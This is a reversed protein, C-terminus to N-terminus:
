KKFVYPKAFSSQESEWQVNYVYVLVSPLAVVPVLVANGPNKKEGVCLHLESALFSEGDMLLLM